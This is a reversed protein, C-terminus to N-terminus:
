QGKIFFAHVFAFFFNKGSIFHVGAALRKFMYRPNLFTYMSFVFAMSMILLAICAFSAQTRLLDIFNSSFSFFFHFSSSSFVFFVLSFISIIDKDKLQSITCEHMITCKGCKIRLEYNSAFLSSCFFHILRSM